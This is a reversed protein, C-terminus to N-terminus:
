RVPRARRDWCSAPPACASRGNM